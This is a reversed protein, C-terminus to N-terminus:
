ALDGGHEFADAVHEAPTPMNCVTVEPRPNPAFDYLAISGAHGVCVKSDIFSLTTAQAQLTLEGIVRYKKGEIIFLQIRKKNSVAICVRGQIDAVAFM